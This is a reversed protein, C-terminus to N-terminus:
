PTPVVRYYIGNAGYSPLFWTNGCLFYTTGGVDPSACGAPLVAYNTGMAYTIAATSGAVVGANYATSVAASTSATAIAAGTAMGVVAGAAAACGYCGAASYYPV